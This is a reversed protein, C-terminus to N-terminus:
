VLLTVGRDGRDLRVLQSWLKDFYLKLQINNLIETQGRVSPQRLTMISGPWNEGHKEIERHINGDDTILLHHNDTIKIKIRGRIELSIMM